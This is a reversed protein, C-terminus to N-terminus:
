WVASGLSGDDTTYILQDSIARLEEKLVFLDASRAGFITTIRAGRRTIRRLSLFSPPAAGIGGCIGIVNKEGRVEVAEGM